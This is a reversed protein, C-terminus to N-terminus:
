SNKKDLYRWKKEPPAQMIARAINEPTDPIPPPMPNASRGVSESEPKAIMGNENSM